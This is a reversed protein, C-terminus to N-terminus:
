GRTIVYKTQAESISLHLALPSLNLAAVPLYLMTVAHMKWTHGFASVRKLVVDIDVVAFVTGVVLM